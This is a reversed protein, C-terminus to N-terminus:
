QKVRKIVVWAGKDPAQKSVVRGVKFQNSLIDQKKRAAAENESFGIELHAEQAAVLIAALSHYCLGHSNGQCHPSHKLYNVDKDLFLFCETEFHDKGRKIVVEYQKSDHGPVMVATVRGHVDRAVVRSFKAAARAEYLRVTFM